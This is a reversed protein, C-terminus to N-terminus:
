VPDGETNNEQGDELKKLITQYLVLMTTTQISTWVGRPGVGRFWGAIGEEQYLLRLGKFVSSTDVRAAGPPNVSTSPSSTSIPRSSGPTNTTSQVTHHQQPGRNETTLTHEGTAGAGAGKSSITSPSPSPPPPNQQTQTRTKVVDLPCSLVGAMGGATAATFVELGLGIDRHGVWEKALAHEKEYLAFQVASFPLDRFITAKYGYFLASFGEQRVIQRFADATSRYNYGSKFHPNNYRGQLQLRTKM